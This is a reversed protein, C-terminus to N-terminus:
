SNLQADLGKNNNNNFSTPLALGSSLSRCGILGLVGAGCYWGISMFFIFIFITSTLFAYLLKHWYFVYARSKFGALGVGDFVHDALDNWM